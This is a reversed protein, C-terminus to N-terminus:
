TFMTDSNYSNDMIKLYLYFIGVRSLQQGMQAEIDGM